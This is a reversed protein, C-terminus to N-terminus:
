QDGHLEENTFEEGSTAGMMEAALMDLFHEDNEEENFPNEDVDDAEMVEVIKDSESDYSLHYEISIFRLIESIYGYVEALICCLSAAKNKIPFERTIGLFEAYPMIAKTIADICEEDDGNTAIDSFMSCIMKLNHVLENFTELRDEPTMRIIPEVPIGIPEDTGGNYLNGLPLFVPIVRPAVSEDEPIEKTGNIFDDVIPNSM